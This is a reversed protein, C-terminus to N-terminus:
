NVREGGLGRSPEKQHKSKRVAGLVSIGGEKSGRTTGSINKACSFSGTLPREGGAKTQAEQISRRRISEGWETKGHGNSKVRRCPVTGGRRVEKLEKQPGRVLTKPSTTDRGERGELKKRVAGSVASRNGRQEGIKQM